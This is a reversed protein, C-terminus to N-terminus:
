NQFLVSSWKKHTPTRSMDSILEFMLKPEAHFLCTFALNSLVKIAKCYIFLGELRPAYNVADFLNKCDMRALLLFYV